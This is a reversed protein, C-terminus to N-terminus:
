KTAARKRVRIADIKDVPIREVTSCESYQLLLLGSEIRQFIGNCISREFTVKIDDGRKLSALAAPVKAKDAETVRERKEKERRERERLEELRTDLRKDNISWQYLYEIPDVEVECDQCTLTRGERDIWVYTHKCTAQQEAYSKRKIDVRSRHEKLPQDVRAVFPVTARTTETDTM